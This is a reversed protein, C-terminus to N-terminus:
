GIICIQNVKDITAFTSIPKNTLANGVLVFESATTIDLDGSLVGNVAILISTYNTITVNLGESSFYQQDHAVYILSNIENPLLGITISEMPGTYPKQSSLYFYSSLILSFAIIVIAIAVAIRKELKIKM